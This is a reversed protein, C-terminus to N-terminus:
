PRWSCYVAAAGALLCFVSIVGCTVAVWMTATIRPDTDKPWKSADNLMSPDAWREYQKYAFTFNWWAAFGAAFALAIGSVFWWLAGLFPPPSTASAKFLLGAIAGSHMLWLTNVLWKGYDAQKEASFRSAEVMREYIEKAHEKYTDSM